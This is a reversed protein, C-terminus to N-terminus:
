EKAEFIEDLVSQDLYEVEYVSVQKGEVYKGVYKGQILLLTPKGTKNM